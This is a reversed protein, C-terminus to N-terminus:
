RPRVLREGVLDVAVVEALGVPQLELVHGVGHSQHEGTSRDRFRLRPSALVVSNAEARRSCGAPGPLVIFRGRSTGVLQGLPNTVNTSVSM